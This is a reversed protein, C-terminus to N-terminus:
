TRSSPSGAQQRSSRQSAGASRASSTRQCGSPMTTSFALHSPAKSTPPMSANRPRRSRSILRARRRLALLLLVPLLLTPSGRGAVRCGDDLTTDADLAPEDPPGDDPDESPDPPPESADPEGVVLVVEAVAENGAQDIAEVRVTHEGAPFQLEVADEPSRQSWGLEPVVLRWGFDAADDEVMAEIRVREGPVARQGEHPSRLEIRPPELDPQAPGRVALLEAVTDQMGPEDCHRAHEELCEAGEPDDLATCVDGLTREAGSTTPSMILDSALVHDLGWSHATEHVITQALERPERIAEGFVLVTERGVADGCDIVCAYGGVGDDLGLAQPLGGVMVMTYPLHEPPREDVVRVAFPALIARVQETVQDAVDRSGLFAPYHLSGEICSLQDLASDDGGSLRAGEYNVYVTAPRPVEAAAAVRAGAVLAVIGAAVRMANM